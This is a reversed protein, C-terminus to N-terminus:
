KMVDLARGGAGGNSISLSEVSHGFVSVVGDYENAGLAGPGFPTRLWCWTRVDLVRGSMAKTAHWVIVYEELSLLRIQTSLVNWNTKLRPCEDQVDAWFWYGTATTEWGIKAREAANTVTWHSSQGVAAMFAEYPVDKTAPHFILEQGRKRRRDFEHNSFEPKPVTIAFGLSRYWDEFRQRHAEALDRRKTGPHANLALGDITGGEILIQVIPKARSWDVVGALARDNLTACMRRIELEQREDSVARRQGSMVVEQTIVDM